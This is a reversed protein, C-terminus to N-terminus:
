SADSGPPAAQVTAGAPADARDGPVQAGAASTAAYFRQYERDFCLSRLDTMRDVFLVGDLHDMEHQAVVASFGDLVVDLPAGTRDLGSLRVSTHRDVLGRIGWVSLCGEWGTVVADTMPTVSPNIVVTLPFLEADTYRERDRIEIAFVREPAHVQPAAIGVGESDRMTDVMNAVLDDFAKSRLREPTVPVAVERLVPHGLQAIKLLAM